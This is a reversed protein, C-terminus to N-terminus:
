KPHPKDHMKVSMMNKKKFSAENTNGLGHSTLLMDNLPIM